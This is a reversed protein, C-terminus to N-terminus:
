KSKLKLRELNGLNAEKVKLGGTEAEWNVIIVRMYWWAWYGEFIQLGSM